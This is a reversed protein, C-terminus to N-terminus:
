RKIPGTPWEIPKEEYHQVSEHPLREREPPRGGPPLRTLEAAARRGYIAACRDSCFDIQDYTEGDWTRFWSIFPWWEEPKNSDYGSVSFVAHNTLRQCDEATRPHNEKEPSPGFHHTITRPRLPQECQICRKQPVILTRTPTVADYRARYLKVQEARPLPLQEGGGNVLITGKGRTTAAMIAAEDAGEGFHKVILDRAKPLSLDARKTSEAITIQSHYEHSGRRSIHVGYAVYMITTPSRMLVRVRSGYDVGNLSGYAYETAVQEFTPAEETM